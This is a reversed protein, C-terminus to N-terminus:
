RNKLKKTIVRYKRCYEKFIDLGGIDAKFEKMVLEHKWLVDKLMQSNKILPIYSLNDNVDALKIIMARKGAKKIKTIFIERQKKYDEYDEIYERTLALVLKAVKLGFEKKIQRIECDTDEILDHLIGAIVVEKPQGLELLKFGVWLSHLIVPKTNRCKQSVCDVLMLVAKEIEKDQQLIKIQM